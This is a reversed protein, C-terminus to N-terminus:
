QTRRLVGDPQRRHGARAAAGARGAPGFLGPGHQSSALPAWCAIEVSHLVAHDAASPGLADLVAMAQAVVSGSVGVYEEIHTIMSDDTQYTIVGAKQLAPLVQARLELLGIGAHAAYQQALTGTLGRGHGRLRAAFDMARGALLLKELQARVLPASILSDQQHLYVLARGLRANRDPSGPAPSTLTM